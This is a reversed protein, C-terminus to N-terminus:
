LYSAYNPTDCRGCVWPWSWQCKIGAPNVYPSWPVADVTAGTQSVINFQGGAIISGIMVPQFHLDRHAPAAFMVFYIFVVPRVKSLHHATGMTVNYGSPSEVVQGYMAQRVADIDTTGSQSVAAVWMKFGIYHAEMPDNTVLSSDGM